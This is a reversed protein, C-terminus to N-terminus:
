LQIDKLQRLPSTEPVSMSALWDHSQTQRYGPLKLRILPDDPSRGLRRALVALPPLLKLDDRGGQCVFVNNAHFEQRLLETENMAAALDTALADVKLYSNRLADWCKRNEEWRQEILLPKERAEAESIRLTLDEIAASIQMVERNAVEIESELREQDSVSGYLLAQRHKAELASVRKEADKVSLTAVTERLEGSTAQPKRLIDLFSM